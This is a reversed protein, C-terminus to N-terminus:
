NPAGYNMISMIFIMDEHSIKEEFIDIEELIEDLIDESEDDAAKIYSEKLDNILELKSYPNMARLNYIEDEAKTLEDRLESIERKNSIIEEEKLKLEIILENIKNESNNLKIKYNAIEKEYENIKNFLTDFYDSQLNIIKEKEIKLKDIEM